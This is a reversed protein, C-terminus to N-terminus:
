SYFGGRDEGIQALWPWVDEISADITVARTTRPTHAVVLEDGPLDAAGEDDRAGWKCIWPRVRFRYLAVVGIAAM